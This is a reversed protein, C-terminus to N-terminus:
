RVSGFIESLRVCLTSIGSAPGGIVFIVPAEPVKGRKQFAADANKDQFTADSRAILLEQSVTMPLRTSHFSDFILDQMGESPRTEFVCRM